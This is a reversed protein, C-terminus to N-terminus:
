FAKRQLKIQCLLLRGCGRGGHPQANQLGSAVKVEWLGGWASVKEWVVNHRHNHGQDDGDDQAEQQGVDHEASPLSHVCCINCWCDVFKEDWCVSTHSM